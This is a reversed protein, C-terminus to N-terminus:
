RALERISTREILWTAIAPPPLHLLAVRELAGKSLPIGWNKYHSRLDMGTIKSMFEYHQDYKLGVPGDELARQQKPPLERYARFLERYIQWSKAPSADVLQVLFILKDTVDADTEFNKMKGAKIKQVAHTYMNEEITLPPVGMKELAYLSFLNVSSETGFADCWLSQQYNHGLEHVNGWFTRVINPDALQWSSTVMIPYGAHGYGAVIQPDWVLHHKLTQKPHLPKSGDFGAL